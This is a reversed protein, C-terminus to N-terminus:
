RRSESKRETLCAFVFVIVSSTLRKCSSTHRADELSVKGEQGHFCSIYFNREFYLHFQTEKLRRRKNERKQRHLGLAEGIQRSCLNDEYSFIIYQQHSAWIPYLIAKRCYRRLNQHIVLIKAIQPLNEPAFLQSASMNEGYMTIYRNGWNDSNNSGHRFMLNQSKERSKITSNGFKECIRTVEVTIINTKKAM